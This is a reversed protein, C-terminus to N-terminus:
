QRTDNVLALELIPDRGFGSDRAELLDLNVLPVSLYLHRPNGRKARLRRTSINLKLLRDRKRAAIANHDLAVTFLCSDRRTNKVAFIKGCIIVIVAVIEAGDNVSLISGKLNPCRSGRAHNEIQKFRSVTHVGVLANIHDLALLTNPRVDLGATVASIIGIGNGRRYARLLRDVRIGLRCTHVSFSSHDDVKGQGIGLAKIRRSKGRKNGVVGLRDNPLNVYSIKGVLDLGRLILTFIEGKGFLSKDVLVADGNTDVIQLHEANSVNM